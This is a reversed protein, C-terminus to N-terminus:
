VCRYYNLFGQHEVLNCDLTNVTLAAFPRTLHNYDPDPPGSKYPTAGSVSTVWWGVSWDNVCNQSIKCDEVFQKSIAMESDSPHQMFLAIQWCIILLITCLVINKASAYRSLWKDCAYGVGLAIFPISLIVFRASFMACVLSVGMWIWWRKEDTVFVAFIFPFLLFYDILGWFYTNFAVGQISGFAWSFKDYWFPFSLLLVVLFSTILGCAVIGIWLLSGLWFFCGMLAFALAFWSYNKEKKMLCYFSWFIFPYAFLENQFQAFDFILIPAAALCILTALFATQFSFVQKLGFYLGLVAVLLCLWSIVAFFLFSNPFFHIITFFLDHGGFAPTFGSLYSFFAYSDYGFPVQRVFVGISAILSVICLITVEYKEKFMM